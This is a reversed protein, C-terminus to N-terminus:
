YACGTTSVELKSQLSTWQLISDAVAGILSMAELWHLIHQHVFDYIVDVDDPQLDALSAHRMWFRCAYSLSPSIAANVADTAIEQVYIGPSKLDCLNRRLSTTMLKLCCHLLKRHTAAESIWLKPNRGAREPHVLYDRFSQHIISVPRESTTSITFVSQLHCLVLEARAAGDNALFLLRGIEGIRLPNFLLVTCGVVYQQEELYRDRREVSVGHCPLSLVSEYMLDLPAYAAAGPQHDGCLEILRRCPDERRDVDVYRCLTEVFIFLGGAKQAIMRIQELTPWEDSLQRERQIRRLRYELYTMIDQNVDAVDQLTLERKLVSPLHAFDAVLDPEERSTLFVRVHLGPLEATNSILHLVSRLASQDECEDLADIVIVLTPTRSAPRKRKKLPELILREYQKALEASKGLSPFALLAENLAECYDPDRHALQFALTSLLKTVSALDHHNRRFFFSAVSHGQDNLREAVTRAITSKGTGAWGRLWFIPPANPAEAWEKVSRLLEVRTGQHCGRHASLDGPTSYYEAEEVIDLHSSVRGVRTLHADTKAASKDLELELKECAIDQEQINKQMSIWDDATFVDRAYQHLHSRAFQCAARMQLQLVSRYLELIRALLRDRLEHEKNVAHYRLQKEKVRYRCIVDVAINLITIVNLHQQPPQLL